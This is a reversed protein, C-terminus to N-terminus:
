ATSQENVSIVIVMRRCGAWVVIKSLNIWIRVADGAIIIHM